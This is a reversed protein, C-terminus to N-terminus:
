VPVREGRQVERVIDDPLVDDRERRLDNVARAFSLLASVARDRTAVRGVPRITTYRNGISDELELEWEDAISARVAKVSINGDEHQLEIEDGRVPTREWGAPIDETDPLHNM